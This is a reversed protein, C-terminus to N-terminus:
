FYTGGGMPADSNRRLGGRGGAPQAPRLYKPRKYLIKGGMEQDMVGCKRIGGDRRVDGDIRCLFPCGVVRFSSSAHCRGSATEQTADQRLIATTADRTLPRYHLLDHSPDASIPVHNKQGCGNPDRPRKHNIQIGKAAFRKCLPKQLSLSQDVISVQTAADILTEDLHTHAAPSTRSSGRRITARVASGM